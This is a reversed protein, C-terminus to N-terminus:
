RKLSPQRISLRIGGCRAPDPNAGAAVGPKQPPEQFGFREVSNDVVLDYYHQFHDHDLSPDGSGHHHESAGGAAAPEPMVSAPAPEGDATIPLPSVPEAAPSAACHHQEVALDAPVVPVSVPKAPAYAPGASVGPLDPPTNVIEYSTDPEKKFRFVVQGDPKQLVAEDGELQIDCAMDSAICGFKEFEGNGKKRQLEPSKASTLFQGDPILFVPMLINTNTKDTLDKDYFEEGELDVMWGFHEPNSEQTGSALDGRRVFPKGGDTFTTVGKPNPVDLRLISDEPEISCVAVRNESRITNIRLFHETAPLVGIEFCEIGNITTKHFVMLGRFVIRLKENQNDPPPM